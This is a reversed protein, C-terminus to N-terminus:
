FHHHYHNTHTISLTRVGDGFVMVVVQRKVQACGLGKGRTAM